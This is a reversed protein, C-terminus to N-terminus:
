MISIVYYDINCLQAVNWAALDGQRKGILIGIFTALNEKGFRSFSCLIYM